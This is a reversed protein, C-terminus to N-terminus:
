LTHWQKSALLAKASCCCCQKCALLPVSKKEVPQWFGNARWVRLFVMVFFLRVSSRRRNRAAQPADSPAVSILLGQRSNSAASRSRIKCPSRPLLSSRPRFASTGFNSLRSWSLSVGFKRVTIFAVPAAVEGTIHIIIFGALSLGAGM